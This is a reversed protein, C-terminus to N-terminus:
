KVRTTLNILLQPNDKKLLSLKYKLIMLILDLNRINQRNEPNKILAADFSEKLGRNLGSSIPTVRVLKDAPLNAKTIAGKSLPHDLDLQVGFTDFVKKIKKNYVDYNAMAKTYKARNFTPNPKTTGELNKRGFANYLLESFAYQQQKRLGKTNNMNKLVQDIIQDDRPIFISKGKTAYKGKGIAVREAYINRYLKSFGEQIEEIPKNLLASIKEVSSPGRFM